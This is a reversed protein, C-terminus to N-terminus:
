DNEYETFYVRTGKTNLILSYLGGNKDELLTFEGARIVTLTTMKMRSLALERGTKKNYNDDLSCRAKGVKKEFSTGVELTKFFWPEISEMAITVGGHPNITSFCDGRFDVKTEIYKRNHCFQIM